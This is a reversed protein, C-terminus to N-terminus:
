SFLTMEVMKSCYGIFCLSYVSKVYGLLKNKNYVIGPLCEVGKIVDTMLKNMPLHKIITMKAMKFSYGIFCLSYASKVYGLLKNKNYVIGPLCEM